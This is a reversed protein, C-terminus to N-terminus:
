ENRNEIYTTLITELDEQSSATEEILEIIDDYGRCRGILVDLARQELNEGVIGEVFRARHIKLLKLVKLTTPNSLWAKLEMENLEAGKIKDFINAKIKTKRKLSKIWDIIKM